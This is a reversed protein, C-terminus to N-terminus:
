STCKSIQASCEGVHKKMREVLGQMEKRCNKCVAKCGTMGVNVKKEFSNWIADSKRGSM